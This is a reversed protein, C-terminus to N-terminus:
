GACDVKFIPKASALFALYPLTPPTSYVHYSSISCGRDANIASVTEMKNACVPM